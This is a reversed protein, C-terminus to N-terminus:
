RARQNGLTSAGMTHRVLERVEQAVRDPPTDADFGRAFRGHPDM